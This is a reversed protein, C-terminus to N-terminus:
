NRGGQGEAPRYGVFRGCVGCTTRIRRDGAPHDVWDRPSCRHEKPSGNQVGSPEELQDPQDLQEAGRQGIPGDYQTAPQALHEAFSPCQVTDSGGSGGSCGENTVEPVSGAGTQMTNCV